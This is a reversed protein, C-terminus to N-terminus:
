LDHVSNTKRTLVAHLEEVSARKRVNIHKVLLRKLASAHTSHPDATITCVENKINSKWSQLEVCDLWVVTLVLQVLVIRCQVEVRSSLQNCERKM